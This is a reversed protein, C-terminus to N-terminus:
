QAADAWALLQDILADSARALARAGSAADPGGPLRQEFTQQREGLRARLRVCVESTTASDFRQEFTELSLNLVPASAKADLRQRVREALLDAPEAAWRSDHFSQLRLPDGRRYHMATGSLWDPADVGRLRLVVTPSALSPGFDYILAEPPAPPLVSCGTLLVTLGPIWARM